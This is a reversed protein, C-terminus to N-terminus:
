KFSSSNRVLSKFEIGRMAIALTKLFIHFSPDNPYVDLEPVGDLNELFWPSGHQEEGPLPSLKQKEAFFDFLQALIIESENLKWKAVLTHIRRLVVRFYANASLCPTRTRQTFTSLFQSLLARLVPGGHSTEASHGDSSAIGHSRLTLLPLLTFLRSWCQEWSSILYSLNKESSGIILEWFHSSNSQIKGLTHHLIVLAEIATQSSPIGAARFPRSQSEFIFKAMCAWDKDSLSTYCARAATILLEETSRHGATMDPSLVYIQCALVAYMSFVRILPTGAIAVNPVKALVMTASLSQTLLEIYKTACADRDVCDHFSLHRSNASIIDQLGAGVELLVDIAGNGHTSVEELM